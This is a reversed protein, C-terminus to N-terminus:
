NTQNCSGPFYYFYKYLVFSFKPRVGVVPGNRRVSQALSVIKVLMLNSDHSHQLQLM